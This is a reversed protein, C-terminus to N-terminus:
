QVAPSTGDEADAPTFVTMVDAPVRANSLPALLTV